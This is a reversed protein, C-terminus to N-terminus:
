GASELRTSWEHRNGGAEKARYMALDADRIIAEPTGAGRRSYAIGISVGVTGVDDAVTVPTGLERVLRTALPVVASPSSLDEALIAFEDGGMRAVSDESRTVGRLRAAIDALVRDGAEHGFRDNIPKFWDLDLYLVALDTGLRRARTLAQNLREYFVSHNYLGTLGDHAAQYALQADFRRRAVQRAHNFLLLVIAALVLMAVIALEIRLRGSRLPGYFEASSQVAAGGWGGVGFGSYAVLDHSGADVYNGNAGRVIGEFARHYPFRKGIVGTDTAVVVTGTSDSVYFRGTSGYHLKKVFTELASTDLRVYGVFIAKTVTGVTIPVGMAVVHVGDVTMVSSVDPQAQLLSRVMPAYGPDSPPPLGPGATYETLVNRGLDVVAAGYNLLVAHSLFSQLRATDEPDDPRLNWTGTSAYDLGEKLSFLLFQQGLGGLTDQLEQRDRLHTQEASNTAAATLWIALGGTVCILAVSLLLLVPHRPPGGPPEPSPARRVLTM